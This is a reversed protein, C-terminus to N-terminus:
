IVLTRYFVPNVVRGNSFLRVNQTCKLTPKGSTRKREAFVELTCFPTSQKVQKNEMPIITCNAERIIVTQKRLKIQM